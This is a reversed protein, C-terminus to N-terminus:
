HGVKKDFFSAMLELCEKTEPLQFHYWFADPLAEFVVITKPKEAPTSAPEQGISSSHIRFLATGALVMSGCFLKPRKRM